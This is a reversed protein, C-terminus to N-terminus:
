PPGTALENDEGRHGWSSRCKMPSEAVHPWRSEQLRPHTRHHLTLNGLSGEELAQISDRATRSGGLGRLSNFPWTPKAGLLMSTKGACRGERSQV